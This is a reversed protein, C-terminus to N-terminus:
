ESIGLAFYYYTSGDINLRLEANDNVGYNVWEVARDEWTLTVSKVTGTELQASTGRAAGRLWVRGGYIPSGPSSVILLLPKFDFELRTPNSKGSTGDGTYTSYKFRLQGAELAALATKEAKAAELAAVQGSLGADAAAFEGRVADLQTELTRANENLPEPSFVDSTGILNLKCTKTQQM